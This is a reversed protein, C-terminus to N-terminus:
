RGGAWIRRMKRQGAKPGFRRLFLRTPWFILVPLLGMMCLLYDVPPLWTQTHQDSPGFVYNVNVPKGPDNAPAPPAPLFLYCVLLLAISLATWTTFGRRDYGLRRVLWLVFLPLWFHYFSLFRTFIPLASNFM